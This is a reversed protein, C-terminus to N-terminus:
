ESSSQIIVRLESLGARLQDVDAAIEAPPTQADLQDIFQNIFNLYDDATRLEGTMSGLSGLFNSQASSNSARSAASSNSATQSDTGDAATPNITETISEIEQNAQQLAPV